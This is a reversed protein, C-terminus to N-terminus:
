RAVRLPLSTMGAPAYGFFELDWSFHFTTMAILAIGRLGDLRDLRSRAPITNPDSESSNM